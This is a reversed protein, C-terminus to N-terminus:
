ESPKRGLVTWCRHPVTLRNGPFDTRLVAELDRDFADIAVQKLSGGIGASARVRGRWGEPSFAPECDFSWCEIDTFGAAALDDLHSPYIGSGGGLNWAPNHKAILAETAEATVVNGAIVQVKKSFDNSIRAVAEIVMQSHGHSTDAVLADVGEEVLAACRDLCDPGVGVAAAVRLRGYDDKAANPYLIKKQIDKM